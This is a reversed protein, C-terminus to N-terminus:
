FNDFNRVTNELLIRISFSSRHIKHGQREPETLSYFTFIDNKTNVTKKIQYPDKLM